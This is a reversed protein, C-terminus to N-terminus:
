PVGPSVRYRVISQLGDDNTDTGWFTPRSAVLIHIRRPVALETVISGEKSLVRWLRDGSTTYRELWITGDRGVLIRSLPPYASPMKMSRWAAVEEPRESEKTAENVVSDVISRPLTAPAFEYSRTFSTDGDATIVTLQYSGKEGEVIGPGAIAVRSGDLAIDDLPRSCFPTVLSGNGGTFRYDMRCQDAPRWAVIKQFAADSSIRVIPDGDRNGGPWRVATDASALMPTALMSGDSYMANPYVWFFSPDPTAPDSDMHITTAWPVTRAFTRAPSVLTLRRSSPDLVLLTDGLWAHRGIHQFEGPGQGKRGFTGLDAGRENFFRINGDQQQAVAIDGNPAVAIWSIPSLNASDADIRLDVAASTLPTTDVKSEGCGILGTIAVCLPHLKRM